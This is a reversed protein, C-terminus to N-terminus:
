LNEWSNNDNDAKVSDKVTDYEVHSAIIVVKQRKNNDQEWREQKMRGTVRVGRGKKSYEYAIEATKGFCVIEFYSVEEVGAYFSNSAISFTTVMTGKKTERTTPEFTIRGEVLVNNLDNM